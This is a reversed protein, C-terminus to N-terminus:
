DILGSGGQIMSLELSGSFNSGKRRVRSPAYPFSVKSAGCAREAWDGEQVRNVARQRKPQRLSLSTSEQNVRDPSEGPYTKKSGLQGPSLPIPFPCSPCLATQQKLNEIQMRWDRQSGWFVDQRQERVEWTNEGQVSGKSSLKGSLSEKGWSETPTAKM